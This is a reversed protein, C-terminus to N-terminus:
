MSCQTFKGILAMYNLYLGIESWPRAVILSGGFVWGWCVCCGRCCIPMRCRLFLTATGFETNVCVVLHLPQQLVGDSM